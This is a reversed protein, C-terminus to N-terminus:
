GEMRETLEKLKAEAESKTLFVTKGFDEFCFEECDITYTAKSSPTVKLEIKSANLKYIDCFSEDLFYLIDVKGLAYPIKVFMGQEELDEYEALRKLATRIDDKTMEAPITDEYKGKTYVILDDKDVRKIRKTVRDMIGGDEKYPEPLPMWAVVKEDIVNNYVEDPNFHRYEWWGKPIIRCDNEEDWEGDIDMWVWCSNVESVTGDEYLATTITKYEKGDSRKSVACILVEKEVEPLREKVSIWNKNM